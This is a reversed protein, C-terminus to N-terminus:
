ILPLDDIMRSIVDLDVVQGEISEVYKVIPLLYLIDIGYLQEKLVAPSRLDLRWIDIAIKLSNGASLRWGRKIFKRTRFLSSIPHTSGTYILNRSLTASLMEASTRVGTEPSWYGKTHAFDFKRVVEEPEGSFKLVIQVGNSYTVANETIYLPFVEKKKGKRLVAPGEIYHYDALLVETFERGDDFFFFDIDKPEERALLSAIATGAVFGRKLLEPSIAMLKESLFDDIM